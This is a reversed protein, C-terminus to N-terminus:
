HLDLVLGADRPDEIQPRDSQARGSQLDRFALPRRDGGHLAYWEGHLGVADGSEVGIDVRRLGSLGLRAEHQDRPRPLVALADVVVGGEATGRVSPTIWIRRASKVNELQRHTGQAIAPANRTTM